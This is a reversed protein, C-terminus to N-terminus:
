QEQADFGVFRGDDPLALLHTLFFGVSQVAHHGRREDLIAVDVAGAAVALKATQFQFRALSEPFGKRGGAALGLAPAVGEDDLATIATEDEAFLAVEDDRFETRLFIVFQTARVQEIGDIAIGAAGDDPRM